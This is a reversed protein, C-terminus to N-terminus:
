MRIFFIFNPENEYTSRVMRVFQNSQPEVLFINERTVAINCNHVKDRTTEVDLGIAEGFSITENSTQSHLHFNKVRYHLSLAYMGCQGKGEVFPNHIVENQKVVKKIEDIAPIYYKESTLWINEIDPWILTIRDKIKNGSLIM